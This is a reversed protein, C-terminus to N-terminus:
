SRCRRASAARTGRVSAHPPAAGAGPGYGTVVNFVGPPIGFIPNGGTYILASARYLSLTGLTVIFPQLGGFAVLMGNISGAAACGTAPNTARRRRRRSSSTSGAWVRGTNSGTFGGKRYPAYYTIRTPGTGAIAQAAPLVVDATSLRPTSRGQAAKGLLRVRQTELRAARRSM